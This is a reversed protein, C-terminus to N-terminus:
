VTLNELQAPLSLIDAIPVAIKVASKSIEPFVMGSM